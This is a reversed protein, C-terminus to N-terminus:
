ADLHSELFYLDQDASRVIETFLDSTAKDGLDDSAEIAKRVLNGYKALNQSLAKLHEEGSVASLNYEPLSSSKAALRATGLAVGGLATAREAVLDVWDEADEAVKDFLLHLQYFHIGKVNWHAQKAQTALDLSDALRANLLEILKERKGESLSIGTEYNTHNPRKLVASIPTKPNTSM